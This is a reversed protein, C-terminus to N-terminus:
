PLLCALQRPLQWALFQKNYTDCATAAFQRVIPSESLGDYM